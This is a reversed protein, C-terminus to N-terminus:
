ADTSSGYQIALASAALSGSDARIWSGVRAEAEDEGGRAGDGGSLLNM